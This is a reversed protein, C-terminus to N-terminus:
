GEKRWRERRQLEELSPDQVHSADTKIDGARSYTNIMVGTTSVQTDVLKLGTPMTGEGFLRKGQGLILPFISVRFEDILDAQLLSQLLNSSGQTLLAPGDQQKLRMVDRAADHIAVSNQWNLSMHSTTAVYKTVSNFRQGIPNANHHPWYAAFIEYTKRGLLLDFPASFLKMLEHGFVDDAFAWTWGGLRFGNTPDEEPGGPSQMVGDLSMMVSAILKRM